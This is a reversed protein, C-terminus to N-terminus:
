TGGAELRREGQDRGCLTPLSSVGGGWGCAAPHVLLPDQCVLVRVIGPQQPRDGRGTRSSVWWGGRRAAPPGVDRATLRPTSADRLGVLQEGM